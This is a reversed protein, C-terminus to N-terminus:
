LSVSRADKICKDCNFCKVTAYLARVLNTNEEVVIIFLNNDSHFISQIEMVFKMLEYCFHKDLIVIVFLM